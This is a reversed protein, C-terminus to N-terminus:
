TRQVLAAQPLPFRPAPQLPAPIRPFFCLWAGWAAPPQAPGAPSKGELIDKVGLSMSFFTTVGHEELCHTVLVAFGTGAQEERSGAGASQGLGSPSSFM